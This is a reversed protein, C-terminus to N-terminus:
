QRPKNWLKRIWGVLQQVPNRSEPDPHEQWLEQNGLYEDGRFHIRTRLQTYGKEHLQHVLNLLAAPETEQHDTTMLLKEYHFIAEFHGDLFKMEIQRNFGRELDDLGSIQYKNISSPSTM